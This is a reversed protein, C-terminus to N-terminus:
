EREPQATNSTTEVPVESGTASVFHVQCTILLIRFNAKRKANQYCSIFYKLFIFLIALRFLNYITNDFLYKLKDTVGNVCCYQYM